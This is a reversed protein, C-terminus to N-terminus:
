SDFNKLELPLKFKLDTSIQGEIDKSVVSIPLNYNKKIFDYLVTDRALSNIMKILNDTANRGQKSLVIDPTVNSDKKLNNLFYNIVM